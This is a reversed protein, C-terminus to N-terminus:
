IQFDVEAFARSLLLGLGLPASSSHEERSIAPALTSWICTAYGKRRICRHLVIKASDM